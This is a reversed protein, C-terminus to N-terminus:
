WFVLQCQYAKSEGETSGGTRIFPTYYRLHDAIERGCDLVVVIPVRRRKESNILMKDGGWIRLHSLGM